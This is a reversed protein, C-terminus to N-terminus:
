VVSYRAPIGVWGPPVNQVRLRSYRGRILAVTMPQQALMLAGSFVNCNMITLSSSSIGTENTGAGILSSTRTYDLPAGSPEPLHM